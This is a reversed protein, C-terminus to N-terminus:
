IFKRNEYIGCKIYHEIAEEDTMNILDENIKKYTSVNFNSPLNNKNIYKRNERIGHNIYHDIAQNDTLIILDDNIKKYISVNFNSPLNNRDIYKRNENIGCKLYHNIAEDDTMNILDENIKKYTSVNFHQPLANSDIYKRNEYIGHKIYHEIAEDDTMNILDENMKKYTSVNFDVPTHNSIKTYVENWSWHRCQHMFPEINDDKTLYHVKVNNINELPKILDHYNDTIPPILIHLTFILKSNLETILNIFKNVSNSTPIYINSERFEPNYHFNYENEIDLTHIFDINKSNLITSKFRKLRRNLTNIFKIMNDEYNISLPFDHVSSFRIKKHNVIKNEYLSFNSDYFDDSKIEENINEVYYLITDFNTLVWDFLNTDRRENSFREISQRLKCSCGLPFLM